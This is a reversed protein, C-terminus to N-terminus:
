RRRLWEALLPDLLRSGDGDRVVHQEEAALRDLARQMSSRSTAHERAARQGTASMGDALAVLVSREARGLAEWAAQHADTIEALALDVARAALDEGHPDESMLDYLHHALLM